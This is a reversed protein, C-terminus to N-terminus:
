PQGRLRSLEGQCLQILGARRFGGGFLLLRLSNEQNLLDAAQLLSTRATETDGARAALIGLHLRPMAFTPDLYSATRDHEIALLPAGRREDLLALLYHAPANLDDAALLLACAREAAALQGSHTLLAARVLQLDSDVQSEDLGDIASLARDFREQEVLSLISPLSGSSAARTGVASAVARPANSFDSLARLRASSKGVIELWDDLNARYPPPDVASFTPEVDAQDPSPVHLSTKREYYFAEHTHRLHFDHSLGRLNEAHGLFLHGGPRLALAFRRVASAAQERTFYMIVNRCLIVDFNEYGLLETELLNGQQFRVPLLRERLLLHEGGVQRFYRARLADSTDRLSWPSYRAREAHEIARPNLDIGLIDFPAGQPVGQECGLIALTYAEEGTACGASLVRMPAKDPTSQGRGFAVHSFARLQDAHRFFYTEGVTLETALAGLEAGGPTPRELEDLYTTVDVRRAQARRELLGALTDRRTDDFALGVRRAVLDRFRQVSASPGSGTM